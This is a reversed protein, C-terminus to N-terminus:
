NKVRIVAGVPPVVENDGLICWIVPFPWEGWHPSNYGDTLMIAFLPTIGNNKVYESVCAASTGGGGAPKTSQTLAAYNDETYIEHGAVQSDWYLLDVLEPTVASCVGVVEALSDTLMKTDISGSTDVGVVVRGVRTSVQSPMYMDHSLWRRSPKRWTSEGAGACLSVAFEMLQERWDVKPEVMSMLERSASGGTKAAAVVGQRIAMDIQRRTDDPLEQASEWDHEDMPNGSQPNKKLEDFVQKTDMGRFSESYLWSEGLKIFEPYQKELDKIELNIVYDAAQNALSSNETKLDGWLWFHQYAKHLNEHLILGALEQESLGKVFDRGYQVDVGNTIATIDADVVSVRGVMILGSFAVTAPHNMVSVHARQIRQEATLNEIFM